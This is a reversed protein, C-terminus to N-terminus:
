PRYIVNYGNDLDTACVRVNGGNCYQIKIDSALGTKITGEWLMWSTVRKHSAFASGAALAAALLTISLTKKM